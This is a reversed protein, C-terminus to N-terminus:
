TVINHSEDPGVPVVPLPINPMLLLLNYLEGDMARVQEDKEAIFDGLLRMEEILEARREADKTRGVEKSGENRKAKLSEVETVVQRRAEDLTLIEDVPATTFLSELASRVLDPQDRIFKLDIL